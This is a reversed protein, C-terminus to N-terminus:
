DREEAQVRLGRRHFCKQKKASPSTGHGELECVMLEMYVNKSAIDWMRLAEGM